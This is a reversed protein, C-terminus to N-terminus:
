GRGINISYMVVCSSTEVQKSIQTTMAGRM